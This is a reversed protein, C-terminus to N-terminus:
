EVIIFQSKKNPIDTKCNYLKLSNKSINDYLSLEIVKKYVVDDIIIIRFDM